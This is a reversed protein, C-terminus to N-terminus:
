RSAILLSEFRHRILPGRLWTLLCQKQAWSGLALGCQGSYLTQVPTRISFRGPRQARSWEAFVARTMLPSPPAM